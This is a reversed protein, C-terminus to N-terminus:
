ERLNIYKVTQFHKYGIEYCLESNDKQTKKEECKVKLLEWHRHKM